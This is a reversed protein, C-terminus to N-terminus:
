EPQEPHLAAKKAKLDAILEKAREVTLSDNIAKTIRRYREIMQDIEVCQECM